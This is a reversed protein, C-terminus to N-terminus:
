IPTHTSLDCYYYLCNYGRYEVARINKGHTKKEKQLAANRM